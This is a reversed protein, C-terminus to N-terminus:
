ELDTVIQAWRRIYPNPSSFALGLNDKILNYMADTKLHKGIDKSEWDAHHENWTEVPPMNSVGWPDTIWLEYVQDEFTM